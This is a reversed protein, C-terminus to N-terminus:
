RWRELRDAGFRTAAEEFPRHVWMIISTRALRRNSRFAHFSNPTCEFAVLTNNVPACRTAPEAESLQTRDFLATEGGDGPRWGDNLLFFIAVAGRVVQVKEDVGLSGDGTKYSCIEQNPVQIESDPARPFWVQNFDNHVFGNLSGVAHYHAGAFVYPTIGVGFVRCMMDRWETSTFLSVPGAASAGFGVGYADYGPLNRSFRGRTPTESIGLTFLERMQACLAAYFEPQFVDRAVVHPFPATRRLWERSAIADGLRSM